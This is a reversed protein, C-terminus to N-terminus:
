ASAWEEMMRDQALHLAQLLGQLADGACRGTLGAILDEPTIIVGDSPEILTEGILMAPPLHREGAEAGCYKVLTDLGARQGIVEAFRMYLTCRGGPPQKSIVTIKSM